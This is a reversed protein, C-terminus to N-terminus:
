QAFAGYLILGYLLSFTNLALSAFVRPEAQGTKKIHRIILGCSIFIPLFFVFISTGIFVHPSVEWLIQKTNTSLQVMETSKETIHLYLQGGLAVASLMAPWLSLIFAIM